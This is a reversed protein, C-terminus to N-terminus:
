QARFGPQKAQPACNKFSNCYRTLAHDCHAGLPEGVHDVAEVGVM